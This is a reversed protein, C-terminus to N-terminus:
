GWRYDPSSERTTDVTFSSASSSTRSTLGGQSSVVSLQAHASPFNYCFQFLNLTVKETVWRKQLATVVPRPYTLRWWATLRTIIHLRFYQTESHDLSHYCQSLRTGSWPSKDAEILTKDTESGTKDNVLKYNQIDYKFFDNRECWPGRLLIFRPTQAQKM